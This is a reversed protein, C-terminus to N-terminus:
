KVQRDLLKKLAASNGPSWGFSKRWVEDSEMCLYVLVDPSYSKIWHYMKQFMEIRIPKFYRLKNDIGPFLEGLVITSDPHKARILPDLQHPYRLAGLSIWAIKEPHIVSFLEDVVGRYEDEWEKYYILPDFHFGLRYGAKQIEVAASLREKITPALREEKLAVTESNVTWSVVTRGNHSLNLLGDINISKTKLEIIANSKDAFYRVLDAGLDILHDFSLSDGLEGTGIRYFHSPNRTLVHHLESYMDRLNAYIKWVPSSSYNQLICYSCDFDCGEIVDLNYYHCCIHRSTGPCIRLFPGNQKAFLIDKDSKGIGSTVKQFELRADPIIEMSIQPFAGLCRQVIESDSVCEEIYIHRPIYQNNRSNSMM